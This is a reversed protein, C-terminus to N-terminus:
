GLDVVEQTAVDDECSPSSGSRRYMTTLPRMAMALLDISPRSDITARM